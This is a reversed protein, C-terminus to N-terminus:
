KLRVQFYYTCCHTFSAISINGQQRCESLLYTLKMFYIYRIQNISEKFQAARTNYSIQKAICFRCEISPSKYRLAEEHESISATVNDVLFGLLSCSTERRMNRTTYIVRILNTLSIRYICISACHLIYYNLTQQSM